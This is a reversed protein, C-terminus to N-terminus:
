YDDQSGTVVSDPWSSASLLAADYPSGINEAAGRCPSAVGLTYDDSGADTFAPDAEINNDPQINENANMAALWTDYTDYDTYLIGLFGAGETVEDGFCNNSYLNGSGNVGDNDGGFAVYVNYESNGVFINNKIINDNLTCSSVSYASVKLGYQGGSCTNNYIVNNDSNYTERTDICINAPEGWMFPDAAGNDHCVNSWVRGYKSIEIFIGHGKNDYVLNHHIDSTSESTGQVYDIWIGVGAGSQDHLEGRGNAYCKNEYIDVGHATDNLGFAKIGFSWKYQEQDYSNGAPQYKGNEYCENRRIICDQFLIGLSIGGVGNYRCINDEITCDTHASSGEPGIGKYWNWEGICNKFVINDGSQSGATGLGNRNSYKATLGDVTIYDTEVSMGILRYSAEVTTYEGDPDATAYLYLVNSAWYWDYESVCAGTSAKRDGFTGDIFLQQRQSTAAAEWVNETGEPTWGTIIEAGNLVPTDGSYAEYVIHNGSSGSSPPILTSRYDGGTDALMIVDGASFTEANHTAISMCEAQVAPDGDVAAAKNAATGDARMTYNAV